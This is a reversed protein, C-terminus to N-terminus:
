RLVTAAAAHASGVVAPIGVGDYAAGCVALGSNRAVDARIAAVRAVHGVAYQPLGGGWRQVHVDVPTPLPRGLVAALEALSDGVLVDDPRQVAAPDGARGVSTRLYAVDPAAQALWGWKRSSFTSAKIPRGDAAPVLFGSGPLEGLARADFALTIVAMSASDMGALHASATPAVGSLLRAAPTPPVALVVADVHWEVEATTPGSVVVWGSRTRRLGRVIVESEVRAGHAALAVRAAVPIRSMGGVVGAFAGGARTGGGAGLRAADVLRTGSVAASWLQPATAQVSLSWADGAYVGGLLPDVLRDLVGLGVRGTVLEGVSLDETVPAAVSEARLREVETASLLGLASEPRAPVGMLSPSPLPWLRGRSYVGAATTAPSTLEEGLGLDRVLEVGEPRVALMAEAGVDVPLGAVEAARLKGGVRDGADLVTVEHGAQALDWAATLGAVGGGVM